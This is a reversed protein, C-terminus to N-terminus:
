LLELKLWLAVQEADGEAFHSAGWVWSRLRGRYRERGVSPGWGWPLLARHARCPAPAAHAGASRSVSRPMLPRTGTSTPFLLRPALPPARCEPRRVPGRAPAAQGVGFARGPEAEAAGERTLRPRQSSEPGHQSSLAARSLAHPKAGASAAPVRRQPRQPRQAGWRGLPEAAGDTQGHRSSPIGGEM